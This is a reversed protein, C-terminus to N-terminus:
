GYLDDLRREVTALLDPHRRLLMTLDSVEGPEDGRALLVQVAGAAVDLEDHGPVGVGAPVRVEVERGDPLTVAIRGPEVERAPPLGAGAAGAGTDGGADAGSVDTGWGACSSPTV